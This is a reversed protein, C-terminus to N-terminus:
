DAATAAAAIAATPTAQTLIICLVASATLSRLSMDMLVPTAASVSLPSLSAASPEPKSSDANSDPSDFSGLRICSACPPIFSTRSANLSSPTDNSFSLPVRRSVSVTKRSSASDSASISFSVWLPARAVSRSPRDPLFRICARSPFSSSIKMLWARSNPVSTPGSADLAAAAHCRSTALKM